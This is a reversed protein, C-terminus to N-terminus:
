PGLTINFLLLFIKNWKVFYMLNCDNTSNFLLDLIQASMRVNQNRDFM